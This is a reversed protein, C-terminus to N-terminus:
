NLRRKKQKLRLVDNRKQQELIKAEREDKSLDKMAAEMKEVKKKRLADRLKQKERLYTGCSGDQHQM